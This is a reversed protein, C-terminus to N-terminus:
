CGPQGSAPGIRIREEDFLLFGGSGGVVRIPPNEPGCLMALTSYIRDASEYDRKQNAEAYQSKLMEIRRCTEEANAVIFQRLSDPVHELLIARM